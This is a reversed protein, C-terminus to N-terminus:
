KIREYAIGEKKQALQQCFNIPVFYAMGSNGKAETDVLRPASGNV